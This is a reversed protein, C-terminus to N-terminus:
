VVLFHTASFQFLLPLMSAAANANAEAECSPIAPFQEEDDDEEAPELDIRNMCILGLRIARSNLGELLEIRAEAVPSSSEPLKCLTHIYHM